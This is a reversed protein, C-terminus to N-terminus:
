EHNEISIHLWSITKHVYIFEFSCESKKNLVKKPNCSNNKLNFISNLQLCGIIGRLNLIFHEYIMFESKVDVFGKGDFNL